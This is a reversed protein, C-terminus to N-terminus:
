KIFEWCGCIGRRMALLEVGDSTRVSVIQNTRFSAKTAVSFAM